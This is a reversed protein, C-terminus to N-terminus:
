SYSLKTRDDWVQNFEISGNAFDTAVDDGNIATVQIQWFPDSESTGPDALGLYIYDIGNITVSSVRSKLLKPTTLLNHRQSIDLQKSTPM